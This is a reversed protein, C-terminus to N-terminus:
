FYKSRMMVEFKWENCFGTISKNIINKVIPYSLIKSIKKKKHLLGVGFLSESILCLFYSTFDNSFCRVFYQCHRFKFIVVNFIFSLLNIFFIFSFSAIFILFRQRIKSLKHIINGFLLDFLSFLIVSNDILNVSIHSRVIKCSSLQVCKLM